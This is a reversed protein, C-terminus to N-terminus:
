SFRGNINIFLIIYRICKVNKERLLDFVVEKLYKSTLGLGTLSTTDHNAKYEPHYINRWIDKRRTDRCVIVNGWEVKHKKMKEKICDSVKKQFTKKFIPDEAMCLDDKYEHARKYWQIIYKM